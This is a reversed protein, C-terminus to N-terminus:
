HHAKAIMRWRIQGQAATHQHHNQPPLPNGGESTVEKGCGMCRYIGSHPTVGGPRHEQDFEAGERKDFYNGYKYSAM